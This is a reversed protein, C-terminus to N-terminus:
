CPHMGVALCSRGGRYPVTTHLSVATALGSLCFHSCAAMTFTSSGVAGEPYPPFNLNEYANLTRQRLTTIGRRGLVDSHEADDGTTDMSVEDAAAVSRDNLSLVAESAAPPADVVPLKVQSGAPRLKTDMGLAPKSHLATPAPMLSSASRLGIASTSVSSGDIWPM